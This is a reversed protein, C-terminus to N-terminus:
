ASTLEGSLRIRRVPDEMSQDLQELLKVLRYAADQASEGRGLRQVERRDLLHRQLRPHVTAHDQDSIRGMGGRGVHRLPRRHGHLVRQDEGLNERTPLRDRRAQGGELRPTRRPDPPNLLLRMPSVARSIERWGNTVAHEADGALPDELRVVPRQHLLRLPAPRAVVPVPVALDHRALDLDHFWSGPLGTTLDAPQEPRAPPPSGIAGQLSESAGIAM